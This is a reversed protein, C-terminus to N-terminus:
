SSYQIYMMEEVHYAEIRRRTGPPEEPILPLLERHSFNTTASTTVHLAALGERQRAEQVTRRIRRPYRTSIPNTNDAEAPAPQDSPLGGDVAHAPQNVAAEM